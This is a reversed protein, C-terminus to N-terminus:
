FAQGIGVYFAVSPDDPGPDLPFAVDLRLPGLGTLYRLGGGVGVKIDGSFDPFSDAGVFGADVFGVVGITETVRVRLEASAEALSRGGVIGDATEVGINRYGYGRVSGGGGAFFLKDPATESIPSGVLSGIKARGALVFRDDADLSYYTRAEAVMRTALNGYNFEYFPEVEADVYFGETADAANDRSDFTIGGLVGAFTFDREGFVDDEFKNYGGELFARGTLERSYIHTFGAQGVVGTRTYADLVEREGIVSAVFNTDPDFIGPATYTPGIRYNFKTPDVTTGIGAVKADLRLQEAHGFLNRHLWYGEVGLGDITSYSGGIGFRHLKREQVYVTIPLQGDPGIVDGEKIRASRFVGLRALRDSAEKIDDPDYEEGPQLDTQRAVFVPDMRTTGQVTVPGYVARPGPAIEISADITDTDHAAVVRQTAIDAKAHGQQQWAAVALRGAKIITGSEAVEGTRFGEEAPDDVRDYRSTPPPAPNVIEAQDFHFLPGPDVNVTVAVPNPFEADPALDDAERGGIRISIVGGYRAEGYLANLIHRYDDKAKAILGAAGSAPKKRDSWLASASKLTKTLGRDADTVNFEITYNQPTGIIDEDSKKEFFKFGLFEFAGAPAPQLLLLGAALAL